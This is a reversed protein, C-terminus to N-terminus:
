SRSYLVSYSVSCKKSKRISFYLIHSIKLIYKVVFSVDKTLIWFILFTRIRFEPFILGFKKKYHLINLVTFMQQWVSKSQLGINHGAKTSRPELNKIFTVIFTSQDDRNLYKLPIQWPDEYKLHTWFHLTNLTMIPAFALFNAGFDQWSVGIQILIVTIIDQPGCLLKLDTQWAITSIKEFKTADNYFLILIMVPGFFVSFDKQTLVAHLKHICRERVM